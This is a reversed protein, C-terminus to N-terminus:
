AEVQRGNITLSANPSVIALKKYDGLSANRVEMNGEGTFQVAVYNWDTYINEIVVNDCKMDFFHVTRAGTDVAIPNRETAIVNGDADYVPLPGEGPFREREDDPGADASNAVTLHSKNRKFFVGNIHVDKINGRVLTSIVWAADGYAHVNSVDVDQSLGDFAIIRTGRGYIDRLTLYRLDGLEAPIKYHYERCGILIVAGNRKKDETRSVDMITDLTFYHELHRDQCLLRVVYWRNASAKINRILMNLTDPDKGAVYRGDNGDNGLNNLAVVDDGTTGTINEVIFNHCGSRMDVGDKNCCSEWEDLDINSVRCTDCHIFYLAYWRSERFQINEIVLNRVNNFLMSANYRKDPFGNLFCTKELLGNPIGGDLVVNGIGTFTIDHEEDAICRNEMCYAKSNTFINEYTFDVQRLYCNLFVITMCSPVKVAHDMHWIFSDTRANYRPIVVRNIGLRSAEDVANQITIADSENYFREENPTLFEGDEDEPFEPLVIDMENQDLLERTNVMIRSLASKGEGPWLNSYFMGDCSTGTEVPTRMSDVGRVTIDRTIGTDEPDGIRVSVGDEETLDTLDRVVINYLNVKGGYLSIAPAGGTEAEIRCLIMEYLHPSRGFYSVADGCALITEETTFGEINEIILNNCGEHLVIGYETGMFSLRMLNTYQVFSLDIGTGGSFHIGTIRADRVNGLVVAPEDATMHIEANHRGVLFIKNQEDKIHRTAYTENRFATCSADILCGNLIVTMDESLDVTKELVWPTNDQKAPILVTRIGTEKAKKVATLIAETDTGEFEEPSYYLRNREM